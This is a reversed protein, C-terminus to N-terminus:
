HVQLESIPRSCKQDGPKAEWYQAGMCQSVGEKRGEKRGEKKERKREREREREKEKERKREREREREKEKERKRKKNKNKNKNESVPNRQTARATKSSVKYVLSAKFEAIQRGRGGL